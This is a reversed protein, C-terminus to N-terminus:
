LLSEDSTEAGDDVLREERDRARQPEQQIQLHPAALATQPVSAPENVTTNHKARKLVCANPSV